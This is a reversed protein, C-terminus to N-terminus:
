EKRLEIRVLDEYPNTRALGISVAQGTFMGFQEQMVQFAKLMEERELKKAITTHPMWQLPRYMKSIRVDQIESVAAYVKLSLEYLYENVNDNKKIYSKVLGVAELSTRAELINNINSAKLITMLHHHNYDRSIIENKDLDSWLTLFLSVATPGIIPEYLSILIKKDIETLITQNVVTYVDAPLLITKM